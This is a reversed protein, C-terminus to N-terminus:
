AGPQPEPELGGKPRGKPKGSTPVSSRPGDEQPATDEPERRVITEGRLLAQIEEGSLTEYELLGKALSELQDSHETLIAQAKDYATDIIIRIEQGFMVFNNTNWSLDVISGTPAKEGGRHVVEPM